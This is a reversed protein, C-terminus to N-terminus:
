FKAGNRLELDLASVSGALNGGEVLTAMDGDVRVELEGLMGRDRGSGALAGLGLLVQLVVLQGVNEALARSSSVVCAILITALLFPKRGWRDSVRSLFAASLAAALGSVSIIAGTVTNIRDSSGRLKEVFLPFAPGPASNAFSITFLAFAAALYGATRFVEGYTGPSGDGRSASPAFDEVVLFKVLLGGVLLLVGAALFAAFYGLRDAVQGGLYPGILIGVHLAAHMMGLTYGSREKPTVSAVLAISAAVTGTLIGQLM